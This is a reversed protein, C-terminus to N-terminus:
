EQVLINNQITKYLKDQYMLKYNLPLTRGILDKFDLYLTKNELAEKDTLAQMKPIAQEFIFKLNNLNM